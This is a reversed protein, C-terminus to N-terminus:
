IVEPSKLSEQREFAVKAILVLWVVFCPLAKLSWGFVYQQKIFRPFLDTVSFTTLIIVFALLLKDSLANKHMQTIYWLAAGVVAIVFTPSEASSSFIVVSILTISLYLLQYVTNQYLKIRLLPLLILVAAPALVAIEPLTNYNFIRKIMGPVSIDQMTGVTMNLANKEVLSNRWDVYCQVIYSPSSILMPLCFLAAMWFLFSAAFRVKNDSFLFFLLGVVGYLKVFIGVAVFLTAWFDKQKKVFVYSLIICGTMIPNFQVSHSATMLEVASILLVVLFAKKSVPLLKIAFYLFLANCFVWLVVSIADPLLAFPAIILSFFPGYHNSDEYQQPYQLYLNKQQVVHWFVYKYIKYNNVKDHLLEITVAILPLAFWLLTPFPVKTKGLKIDSLLFSNSRNTM